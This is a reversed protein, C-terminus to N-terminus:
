GGEPAGFGPRLANTRDEDANDYQAGKLHNEMQDYHSIKSRLYALTETLALVKAEVRDAHAALMRRRETVSAAEDGLDRLRAYRQMEEVSMETARLRLLFTLWNMDEARYRRRGNGARPVPKILGIREYYRLTHVTL